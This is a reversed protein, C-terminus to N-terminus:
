QNSDLIAWMSRDRTEARSRKEKYPMSKHSDDNEAQSDIRGSETGYRVPKRVTESSGSSAASTFHDDTVQLYHKAAIRETNGIWACVVHLPYDEALETERTSRLNQFPKPWPEFGALRIMKTFQTRLNAYRWNGSSDIVAKPRHRSIVYEEGDPAAEYADRLPIVLEPFMPIERTGRGDHHATKPATVRIREREFNIDSWKLSLAESPIRLGGYRALAIILRWEADPACEIIRDITERDIFRQRAANSKPSAELDKFPNSSILRHRVAARFFTKAMGCRRNVTAESPLERILYRRFDDADGETIESLARDAGFYDVLNRRTHGYFTRTGQKVDTRKEIYSNLFSELCQVIASEDARSAPQQGPRSDDLGAKALKSHMRDDLSAVWRSVDSDLPTGTVAHEVLQEVKDRIREANRESISGLGISRRKRNGDYFQIRRRGDKEQILSAM